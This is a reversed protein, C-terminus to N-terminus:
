KGNGNGKGEGGQYEGEEKGKDKERGKGEITRIGEGEGGRKGERLGGERGGGQRARTAWPGVVPVHHTAGQYRRQMASEPATGKQIIIIIISIHPCFCGVSQSNGQGM